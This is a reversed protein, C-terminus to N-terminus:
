LEASATLNFVVAGAGASTITFFTQLTQPSVPGISLASGNTYSINRTVITPGARMRAPLVIMPATTAVPSSNYAAIQFAAGAAGNAPDWFYRQCFITEEHIPRLEAPPPSAQLGVALGPTARLDAYAFNFQGSTLAGLSVVIQFGNLPAGAPLTFTYALRVWSNTGPVSQLPVNNVDITTGGPYNDVTNPHAVRFTPNVAVSSNVLCQFTITQNNLPAAVYSEIRHLVDCATVGAAGTISMQTLPIGPSGTGSNNRTVTVAAGSPNVIWGDATYLAGGVTATIPTGRQWVDFTGNRLRNLFGGAVNVPTSADVYATTALATSNNNATQTVGTTGTPLSPTGTFAPSALPARSTDSPHVHDARAYTTGTGVAATGDM